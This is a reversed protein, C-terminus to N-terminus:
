VLGNLLLPPERVDLSRYDLPLTSEIADHICVISRQLSCLEEVSTSSGWRMSDFHNALDKVRNSLELQHFSSASVPRFATWLLEMGLGSHLQWSLNFSNLESGLESALRATHNEIQRNTSVRATM